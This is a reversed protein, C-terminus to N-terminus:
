MNAHQCSLKGTPKISQDQTRIRSSTYRKTNKMAVDNYSLIVYQFWMRYCGEVIVLKFLEIFPIIFFSYWPYFIILIDLTEQITLNVNPVWWCCSNKVSPIPLHFNILVYSTLKYVIMINTCHCPVTATMKELSFDQTRIKTWSNMKTNKM